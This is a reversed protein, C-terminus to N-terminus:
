PRGTPPGFEELAWPKVRLHNKPTWSALFATGLGVWAERAAEIKAEEDLAHFELGLDHDLDRFFDYGTEFMMSWASLEGAPSMGRKILRRKL